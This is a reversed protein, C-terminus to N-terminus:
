QQFTSPRDSGRSGACRPCTRQRRVVFGGSGLAFPGPLIHTHCVSSPTSEDLLITKLLPISRSLSGSQFGHTTRYVIMEGVGSIFRITKSLHIKM